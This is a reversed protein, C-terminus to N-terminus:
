NGQKKNYMNIEAGNAFGGQAVEPTHEVSPIFLM